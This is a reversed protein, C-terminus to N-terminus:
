WDGRSPAPLDVGLQLLENVLQDHNRFRIGSLGADVASAVNENRDDIFVSETPDIGFQEVAKEYYAPDPKMVGLEYSLAADRYFAVRPFRRLIWDYHVQSTNSALYTDYRVSLREGLEVVREDLWFIDCWMLRFEDRDVSTGLIRQMTSAFEDFDMRGTELEHAPEQFLGLFADPDDTLLLSMEGSLHPRLRNLGIERDFPVLVKGLDFLINRIM